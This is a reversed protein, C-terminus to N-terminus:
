EDQREEKDYKTCFKDLIVNLNKMETPFPTMTPYVESMAGKGIYRKVFGALTGGPGVDVYAKAGSEEMKDIAKQFLIPKRVVQWFFDKPIMDTFDGYVCSMYPIHTRNFRKEKLFETYYKGAKNIGESHFAYSVDLVHHSVNNKDLYEKIESLNAKSSSIVFHEDYNISVLESKKFIFPTEYYLVPNHLIAIMGGTECYCELYEAQKIILRLAEEASLVGSVVAATFEGLSTGLVYEPIVGAEILTHALSYEVMFIAPHSYLTRDFGSGRKKNVDYIRSIISEGIVGKAISDLDLICKKFVPLNKFLESGMHYYHSGQGSFLFVLSKNM